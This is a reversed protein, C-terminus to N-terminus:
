LTNEWSNILCLLLELAFFGVIRTGYEVDSRKLANSAAHCVSWARNIRALLRDSPEDEDDIDDDEDGVASRVDSVSALSRIERRLDKAVEGTQMRLRAVTERQAHDLKGSKVIAGIFVEGKLPLTLRRFPNLFSSM